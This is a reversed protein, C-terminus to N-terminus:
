IMHHINNLLIVEVLYFMRKMNCKLSQKLNIQSIIKIFIFGVMRRGGHIMPRTGFITLAEPENDKGPRFMFQEEGSKLTKHSMLMNSNLLFVLGGMMRKEAINAAGLADRFRLTVLESYAM